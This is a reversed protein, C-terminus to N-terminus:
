LAGERMALNFGQVVMEMAERNTMGKEPYLILNGHIHIGGHQRAISSGVPGGSAFAPARNLAALFNAGLNDVAERRMVFEGPHVLALIGGNALRYGVPGGVAFEPITMGGIVGLTAQRQKELDNVRAILDQIVRTLNEAGQRGWRGTGAGLLTQQGSAILGELQSIASEYDVKHLEYQNLVDNGAFEFQQELAASKQKQRGRRVMGIIGGVLAGIALPLVGLGALGFMAYSIGGAALMGGAVGSGVGGRGMLSAGGLIALLPGMTALNAAFQGPHFALQGLGGQAAGGVASPIGGAGSLGMGGMGIPLGLQGAAATVGGPAAMASIGGGLGFVGGLIPGLLGGIGGGVGGGGGGATVQRIGTLWSALMQSIWKVFSGLTQMLFQHFVDGLSRAQIFM